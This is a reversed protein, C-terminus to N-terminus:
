VTLNLTQGLTLPWTPDFLDHQMDNAESHRSLCIPAIKIRRDCRTWFNYAFFTNEWLSIISAPWLIVQGSTVFIFFGYTDMGTDYELLKLDSPIFSHECRSRSSQHRHWTNNRSQGSRTIQSPGLDFNACLIHWQIILLYALIYGPFITSPSLIEGGGGTRMNFEIWIIVM